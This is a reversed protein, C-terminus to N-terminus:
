VPVQWMYELYMSIYRSVLAELDTHPTQEEMGGM